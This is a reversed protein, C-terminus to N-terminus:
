DFSKLSLPIKELDNPEYTGIDGDEFWVRLKGDEHQDHIIGIRGTLRLGHKLVKVKDGKHLTDLM